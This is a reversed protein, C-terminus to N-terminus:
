ASSATRASRALAPLDGRAVLHLLQGPDQLSPRHPQRELARRQRRNARIAAGHQGRLRLLAGRDRREQRRLRQLERLQGPPVGQGKGGGRFRTRRRNLEMYTLACYVSHEDPPHTRELEEFPVVPLGLLEEHSEFGREVSFAVVEYPSDDTFYEHAIEAFLSDGVIVLKKTGAEMM